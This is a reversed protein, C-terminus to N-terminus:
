NYTRYLVIWRYGESETTGIESHNLHLRPSRLAFLCCVLHSVDREVPKIASAHFLPKGTSIYLSIFINPYSSTIFNECWM